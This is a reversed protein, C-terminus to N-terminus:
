SQTSVVGGFFCSTFDLLPSLVMHSCGAKSLTFDLLPSLVMHSCGAKSSTFDLLPSLVM